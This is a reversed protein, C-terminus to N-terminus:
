SGKKEVVNGSRVFIEKTKMRMGAERVPKRCRDKTKLLM